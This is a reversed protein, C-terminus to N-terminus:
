RLTYPDSVWTADPSTNRTVILTGCNFHSALSYERQAQNFQETFTMKGQRSIEKRVKKRPVLEGDRYIDSQRGMKERIEIKQGLVKYDIEAKNKRFGWERFYREYQAKRSYTLQTYCTSANSDSM